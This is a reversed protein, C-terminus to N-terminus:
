WMSSLFRVKLQETGRSSLVLIAGQKALYEALAAGIGSSAGVIVVRKGRFRNKEHGGLSLLRLDADAVALAACFMTGVAAAATLVTVSLPAGLFHAAVMALPAIRGATTFAQAALHSM